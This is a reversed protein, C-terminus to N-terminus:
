ICFVSCGAGAAILLRHLHVTGIAVGTRLHATTWPAFDFPDVAAAVVKEARAHIAM